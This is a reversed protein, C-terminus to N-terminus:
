TDRCLGYVKVRFRENGPMKGSIIEKEAYGFSEYLRKAPENRSAVELFVAVCGRGRAEESLAGLLVEGIGQRRNAPAVALNQLEAEDGICYLCGTGCVTEGCLAVLYVAYDPLDRLQKESWATSLCEKELGAAGPVFRAELPLIEIKMMCWAFGPIIRRM